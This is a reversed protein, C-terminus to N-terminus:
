HLHSIMTIGRHRVNKEVFKIRVILYGNDVYCLPLLTLASKM